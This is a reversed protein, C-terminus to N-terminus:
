HFLRTKNEKIYLFSFYCEDNRQENKDLKLYALRHEFVRTAIRLVEQSGVEKVTDGEEIKLAQSRGRQIYVQLPRGM